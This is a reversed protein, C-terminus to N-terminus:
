LLLCPVRARVSASSKTPTAPATTATALASIASAENVAGSVELTPFTAVTMQSPPARMLKHLQNVPAHTQGTTATM